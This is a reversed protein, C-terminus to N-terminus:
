SKDLVPRESATHVVVGLDIRGISHASCLGSVGSETDDTLTECSLTNSSVHMCGFPM